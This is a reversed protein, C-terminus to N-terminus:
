LTRDKKKLNCTNSLMRIHEVINWCMVARMDGTMAGGKARVPVTMTVTRNPRIVWNTAGHSASLWFPMHQTEVIKLIKM